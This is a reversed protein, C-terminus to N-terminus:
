SLRGRTDVWGHTFMNLYLDALQTDVRSRVQASRNTMISPPRCFAFSPSGSTIPLTYMTLLTASPASDTQAPDTVLWNVQATSTADYMGLELMPEIKLGVPVNLTILVATTAQNSASSSRIPVKRLFNDGRQTILVLAGSERPLSAIRRFSDYNAPLKPGPLCTHVGSQTGSTNVAAGGNSTSFQFATETLGAAIVYYQTGATVGTPLAGTTSFKIPSGAVLGHGDGAVGMTVVAPSAVTMTCTKSKDHSLSFVAGVAGTDSRKILHIHYTGDAVSGQDLGGLGSVDIQITLASALLIDTTDTSDRWKGVTIDIDNTADSGNNSIECGFGQGKPLGPMEMMSWGAGSFPIFIAWQGPRLTIFTNAGSDDKVVLSYSASADSRILTIHNTTAEPALEVDQDAGSATLIQIQYDDDTLEKIAAITETNSLSAVLASAFLTNFYEALPFNVGDVKLIDALTGM